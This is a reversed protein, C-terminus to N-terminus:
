SQSSVEAYQGGEPFIRYGSDFTTIQHLVTGDNTNGYERAYALDSTGRGTGLCREYTRRNVILVSGFNPFPLDGRKELAVPPVTVVYGRSDYCNFAEPTYNFVHKTDEKRDIVTKRM